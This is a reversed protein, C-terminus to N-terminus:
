NESLLIVNPRDKWYQQRQTGTLGVVIPESAFEQRAQLGCRREGVVTVVGFVRGVAM